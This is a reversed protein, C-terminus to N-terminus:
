VNEGPDTTLALAAVKGATIPLPRVMAISLRPGQLM